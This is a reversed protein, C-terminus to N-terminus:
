IEFLTTEDIKVADYSFYPEGFEVGIKFGFHRARAEIEKDFLKTSIFTEPEKSKLNYFQTDYCKLVELKKSFVSSVDFIFSVPIDYANRYYFVKEPRFSEFLGTKIKNLGSYFVSERILKGANIHDPHRDHPYPVFVIKPKYKRIIRIVKERNAKNLEINGDKLKLNERVSIGLLKTAADTEKKRSNLNGRTSLEGLTLDAIGTKKGSESLSIVTGGCFLEVDDPHTGFFLTDLKM